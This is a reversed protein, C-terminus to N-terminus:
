SYCLATLAIWACYRWLPLREWSLPCSITLRVPWLPWSKDHTLWDILVHGAYQPSWALVLLAVPVSHAVRGAYLLAGVVGSAPKGAHQGGGFRLLTWATEKRRAMQVLGVAMVPLDPLVAFAAAGLTRGTAYGILAHSVFDM